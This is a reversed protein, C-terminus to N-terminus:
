CHQYLFNTVYCIKILFLGLIVTMAVEILTIVGSPILAAFTGGIIVTASIVVGGIHRVGDLIMETANGDLERYLMMLFISYDVGLAVIM